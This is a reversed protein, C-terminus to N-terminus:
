PTPPRVEEFGLREYIREAAANGATVWLHAREEGAAHLSRLCRAVLATALGRGKYEAGTMVYALLPMGDYRSVLVAAAIEAGDTAVLSRDLLPAGSAGAFFGAVEQRAMELTEDGDADVTGLYADLMLVALAEVDAPTPSRVSLALDPEDFGGLAVVLHRRSM